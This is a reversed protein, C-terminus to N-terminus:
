DLLDAAANEYHRLADLIPESDAFAQRAEALYQRMEEGYDQGGAETTRWSVGRDKLFVDVAALESAPGTVEALAGTYIREAGPAAGLFGSFWAANVKRLQPTLEVIADWVVQAILAFTVSQGLLRAPNGDNIGREIGQLLQDITEIPSCKCARWYPEDIEFEGTRLADVFYQRVLRTNADEDIGDISGFRNYNGNIAFTIPVEVEGVRQLLVLAADAGKLSVGTVMCRCDYMGM